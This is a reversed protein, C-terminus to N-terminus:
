VLDNTKQVDNEFAWRAASGLHSPIDTPAYWAAGSLEWKNRTIVAREELIGKFIPAVHGNTTMIGINILPQKQMALGLEEEVERRAAAEIMESREKGGGPLEWGQHGTWNRVLLVEGMPNVLLVRPRVIGFLRNYVWFLIIMLPSIAAGIAYYFKM